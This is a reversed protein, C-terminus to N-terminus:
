RKGLGAQFLRRALAQGPTSKGDDPAWGVAHALRATSQLYAFKADIARMGIDFGSRVADLAELYGSKGSVFDGVTSELQPQQMGLAEDLLESQRLASMLNDTEVSIDRMVNLATLDRRYELGNLDARLQRRENRRNGGLFLPLKLDIGVYWSFDKEVFAPPYDRLRDSYSLASRLDLSPFYRASNRALGLRQIDVEQRARRVQPNTALGQSILYDRVAAKRETSLMLMWMMQQERANETRSFGISDLAFPTDGSQNLLSNLMVRAAWRVRASELIRASALLQESRLRGVSPSEVGAIFAGTRAMELCYTVGRRYQVATSYVEDAKLCDLFATIVALTLDLSDQAYSIETLKRKESEIRISRIATLSFLRQELTLSGGYRDNRTEGFDNTVAHDDFHYASASGVIKPLYDSWARSAAAEASNLAEQAALHGPYQDLARRVADALTYQPADPSAPALITESEKLLDEPFELKLNQFVAENVMLTPTDPYSTPLNAPKEGKVIRVTKWADFWAQADLTINSQSLLAGREIAFRGESSYVPVGASALRELFERPKDSEMGWLFPAYVADVKTGLASYAKFFAFTGVNNYGEAGVTEFGLTRGLSDIAAMVKPREDASAFYLVGLKKVPVIAALAALDRRYRLPVLDVTLNGYIPRGDSGILGESVPDCRYLAVIPKTCGAAILDEVVWPGLAGIVDINSQTALRRAMARCSDRNWQASLFGNPPFVVALNTDLIRELQSRYAARMAAHPAHEGAELFGIRFVRLGADAAVASELAGYAIAVLLLRCLLKVRTSLRPM